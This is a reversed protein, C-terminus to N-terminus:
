NIEGGGVGLKTQKERMSITVVAGTDRPCLIRVLGDMIIRTIRIIMRDDDRRENIMLGYLIVM